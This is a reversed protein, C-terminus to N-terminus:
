GFLMDIGDLDMADRRRAEEIRGGKVVDGAIKDLPEASLDEQCVIEM